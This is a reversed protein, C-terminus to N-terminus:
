RSPTRDRIEFGPLGARTGRRFAAVHFASGLGAAGAVIRVEDPLGLEAIGLAELFEQQSVLGLEELGADQAALAVATFDVDATLDQEGVRALPEHFRGHSKYAMLTGNLREPAYLRPAPDGYDIFVLYGPDVLRAADAVFADGELAVECIQGRVPRVGVRAFREVVRPDTLPRLRERFGGTRADLDVYFELFGDDQALVRHVPLADLVENGFVLSPAPELARASAVSRVGSVASQRARLSPSADVTVYDLPVDPLTARWEETLTRALLGTGAGLEVIRFRAPRGTGEWAARALRAMALRFAPFSVSTSFDGEPGIEPGRAYYGHEPDYLAARMFAHFPLPGEKVIRAKLRTALPTEDQTTL